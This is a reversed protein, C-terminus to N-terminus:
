AQSSASAHEEDSVIDLIAHWYDYTDQALLGHYVQKDSRHGGYATATAACEHRHVAREGRQCGASCYRAFSCASCKHM